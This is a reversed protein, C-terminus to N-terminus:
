YEDKVFGNSELCVVNRDNNTLWTETAIAVDIAESRMYDSLRDEKNRISQTNM